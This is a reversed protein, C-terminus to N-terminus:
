RRRRACGAGESQVEGLLPDVVQTRGDRGCDGGVHVATRCDRLEAAGANVAGDSHIM